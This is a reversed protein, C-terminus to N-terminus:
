NERDETGGGEQTKTQPESKGRGVKGSEGVGEEEGSCGTKKAEMKHGNEEGEEGVTILTQDGAASTAQQKVTPKCKDKTRIPPDVKSSRGTTVSTKAM